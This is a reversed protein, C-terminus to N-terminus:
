RASRSPAFDDAAILDQELAIALSEVEALMRERELRRVTRGIRYLGRDLACDFDRARVDDLTVDRRDGCAGCRLSVYWEEGGDEWEVPVVAEAACARCTVLEGPGERRPEAATSRAFLDWIGTM